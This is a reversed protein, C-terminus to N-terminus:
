KAGAASQSSVAIMDLTVSRGAPGVGVVMAKSAAPPRAPDYLKPRIENLARSSEEDSVYYTAKALHRFDSGSEKLVKGLLDFIAGVQDGGSTGAAGHLGATYILNGRNVRVVRSFVPSQKLHPAALYEVPENDAHRGAAVVLEIEIPQKPSSKWEVFSLPPVAAPGFYDLVESEAEGVSEMPQLFAKAQVVQAKTLGFHKLTADLGELTKRTAEALNDGPEAQGSIFLRGGAPLVAIHNGARQVSLDIHNFREVAGPKAPEKDSVAVADLGLLVRPRPLATVVYGVAPRGGAVAMRRAFVAQFGDRDDARALYVNVKVLRDLGSGAPKLAAELHDLVAQTQREVDDVAVDRAQADLPLILSTYALHKSGDVVVAAASKAAEDIQVPRLGEAAPARSGTLMLAAFTILTPRRLLM